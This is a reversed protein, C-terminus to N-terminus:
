LLGAAEPTPPPNVQGESILRHHGHRIAFAATMRFAGYLHLNVTFGNEIISKGLGLM